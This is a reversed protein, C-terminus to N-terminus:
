KVALVQKITMTGASTTTANHKCRNNYKTQTCSSNLQSNITGRVRKTTTNVTHDVMSNTTAPQLAQNKVDMAWFLTHM